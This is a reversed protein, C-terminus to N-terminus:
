SRSTRELMLNLSPVVRILYRVERSERGQSRVQLSLTGLPEVLGWSFLKVDIIQIVISSERKPGICFNEVMVMTVVAACSSKHLKISFIGYKIKNVM